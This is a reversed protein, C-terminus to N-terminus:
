DYLEDPFYKKLYRMPSGIPKIQPTKEVFNHSTLSQKHWKIKESSSTRVTEINNISVQESISPEM